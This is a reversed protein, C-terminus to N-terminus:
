LGAELKGPDILHILTMEGLQFEASPRARGLFIQGEKGFPGGTMVQQFAEESILEDMTNQVLEEWSNEVPM